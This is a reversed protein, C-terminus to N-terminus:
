SCSPLAFPFCPSPRLSPPGRTALTSIPLPPQRSGDYGAAPTALMKSPPTSPPLRRYSSSLLPSLVHEMVVGGQRGGAAGCEEPRGRSGGTKALSHAGGRSKEGILRWDCRAGGVRERGGGSKEGVQERRVTARRGMGTIDHRKAAARRGLRSGGRQPEEGGHRHHRAVEGGRKERAQEQRAAARRGWGPSTTGGRAGSKEGLQDVTHGDDRGPGRGPEIGVG